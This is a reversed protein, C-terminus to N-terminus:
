ALRDHEDPNAAPEAAIWRSRKRHGSGFAHVVGGARVAALLLEAAAAVADQQTSAVYDIRERAAEVFSMADVGSGAPARGTM